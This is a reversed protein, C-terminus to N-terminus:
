KERMNKKNIIIPEGYYDIRVIEEEKIRIEEEYKNTYRRVRIWDGQKEITGAEVTEVKENGKIYIDAFRNDLVYTIDNYKYIFYFWIVLMGSFILEMVNNYKKNLNFAGFGYIFIVNLVCILIKKARGETLFEIRMDTKRWQKNIIIASVLIYVGGAFIYSTLKNTYIELIIRISVTVGGCIGLKKYLSVVMDQFNHLVKYEKVWYGLEKNKKKIDHENKIWGLVVIGIPVIIYYVVNNNLIQILSNFIKIFDKNINM